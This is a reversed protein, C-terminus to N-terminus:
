LSGLSQLILGFDVVRLYPSILEEALLSFLFGGDSLFRAPILFYFQM